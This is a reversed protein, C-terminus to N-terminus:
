SGMKEMTWKSQVEYTDVDDAAPFSIWSLASRARFQHDSENHSSLNPGGDVGHKNLL